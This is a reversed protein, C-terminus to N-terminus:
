LTGATRWSEGRGPGAEPRATGPPPCRPVSPVHGPGARDDREEGRSGPDSDRRRHPGAPRRGRHSGRGPRRGSGRHLLPAAHRLAPRRRNRIAAPACARPTLRRRRAHPHDPHSRRA